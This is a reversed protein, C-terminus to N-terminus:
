FCRGRVIRSLLYELVDTSSAAKAEVHTADPNDTTAHAKQKEQCDGRM